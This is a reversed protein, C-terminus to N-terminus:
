CDILSLDEVESGDSDIFVAPQTPKGSTKPPPAKANATPDQLKPKTWGPKGASPKLPGSGLHVAKPVVNQLASPKLRIKSSQRSPKTTQGPSVDPLPPPKYPRFIDGMGQTEASDCTAYHILMALKAAIGALLIANFLFLGLLALICPDLTNKAPFAIFAFAGLLFIFSLGSSRPHALALANFFLPMLYELPPPSLEVESAEAGPRTHLEIGRWYGVDCRRYLQCRYQGYHGGFGLWAPTGRDWRGYSYMDCAQDGKCMTDCEELSKGFGFTKDKQEEVTNGSKRCYMHPFSGWKGANPFVPAPAEGLRLFIAAYLAPYLLSIAVIVANLCRPAHIDKKRDV